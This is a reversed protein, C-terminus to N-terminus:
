PAFKMVTPRNSNNYNDIYAVYPTGNDIMLQLNNVSGDSFNTAGVNEWTSGTYRTVNAMGNDIYAVYPMNNDFYLSVPNVSCSLNESAWNLGDFELLYGGGWITQFAVYPKNNNLFLSPAYTYGSSINASGVLNWSNSNPDYNMVTIGTSHAVDRYAVYPIGNNVYLSNAWADADSFGENGVSIWNTGDFEKVTLKAANYDDQYSVFPTNQYVFLKIGEARGASFDASGVTIWNTGNFKMVTSKLSNSNDDYAVYPTGNSIFLSIDYAGSLSFGASGVTIWNTGNFKMVTVRSGNDHDDFAIYPVGNYVASSIVSAFNSTFRATGVTKWSCSALNTLCTSVSGGSGAGCASNILGLPTACKEGASALAGTNNGLCFSLTYSDGNNIQTYSYSNNGTGCTGDPPNPAAPIITLYTQGNYSLAGSVWENDTPYRGADNFFLDLATQVQKIDAVRKADRSKERANNLAVTAVVALIGIIAIVVLLEILTFAKKYKM